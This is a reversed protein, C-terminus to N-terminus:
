NRKIGGEDKENYGLDPTDQTKFTSGARIHPKSYEHLSNGTLFLVPEIILLCCWVQECEKLSRKMIPHLTRQTLAETKKEWLENEPISVIIQTIPAVDQPPV